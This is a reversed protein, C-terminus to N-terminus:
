KGMAIELTDHVTEQLIFIVRGRALMYDMHFCLLLLIGQACLSLRKLLSTESHGASERVLTNHCWVGRWASMLKLPDLLHPGTSRFTPGMHTHTQPPRAAVLARCPVARLM